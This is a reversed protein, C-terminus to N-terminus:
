VENRKWDQRKTGNILTLHGCNPCKYLTSSNWKKAIDMEKKCEPCKMMLTDGIGNHRTLNFKTIFKLLQNIM